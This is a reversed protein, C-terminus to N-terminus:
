NEKNNKRTLIHSVKLGLKKVINKCTIVPGQCRMYCGSWHACRVFIWHIPQIKLNSIKVKVTGNSAVKFIKSSGEFNKPVATPNSACSTLLFAITIGIVVIGNNM